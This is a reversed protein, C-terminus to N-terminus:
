WSKTGHCGTNSCTRTAANWTGNAMKVEHVGNVHLDANIITMAANVVTQHCQSCKMNEGQIHRSHRGSMGTGNTAHCSTCTLPGITLWNITGNNGRGNGHCYMTSCTGTAYAGAPNLTDFKVEAKNDGDIHGPANQTLPVVHCATCPIAHRWNSTMLHQQHAGVGLSTRATGGALDKPPAANATSTGHCSTCDGTAGPDVLDVVGNIHSDPDRFTLSNEEMTPHCSACNAAAAGTPHPAPPPAGHCSGCQSQTGDVLTWTPNPKSGGLMASGHCHATCTTGNWMSATGGAKDSFTVEAKNDGDIHGPDGVAMPVIHCDVCEVRHHWAPQAVLHAQHAGVGVATTDTVGSISKPPANSNDDGHCSIACGAAPDTNPPTPDPPSANDVTDGVCATACAVLVVMWIRM